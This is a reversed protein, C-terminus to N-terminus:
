GAALARLGECWRITPAESLRRCANIARVDGTFYGRAIIVSPNAFSTSAMSWYAATIKLGARASLSVREQRLM